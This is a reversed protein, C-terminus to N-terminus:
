FINVPFRPPGGKGMIKKQEDEDEEEENNNVDYTKDEPMDEDVEEDKTEKDM